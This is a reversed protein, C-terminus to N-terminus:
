LPDHPIMQWYDVLEFDDAADVGIPGVLKTVVPGKWQQHFKFNEEFIWLKLDMKSRRISSTMFVM